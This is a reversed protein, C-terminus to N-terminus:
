VTHLGAAGKKLNDFQLRSISTHYLLLCFKNEFFMDAYSQKTNYSLLYLRHIALYRTCQILMDNWVDYMCTCVYMRVYTRVYTCEYM